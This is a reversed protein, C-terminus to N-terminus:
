MRSHGQYDAIHGMGLGGYQSTGFVVGRPSKRSIGMKAPHRQSGAKSHGLTGASNTNDYSNWVGVFAPLLLQIGTHIGREVPLQVPHCRCLSSIERDNSEQSCLM